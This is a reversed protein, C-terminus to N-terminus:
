MWGLVAFSANLVTEIEEQHESIRVDNDRLASYFEPALPSCCSMKDCGTCTAPYGIAPWVFPAMGPYEIVRTKEDYKFDKQSGVVQNWVVRDGGFACTPATCTWATYNLELVKAMERYGSEFFFLPNMEIVVAGKRQFLLNTLDAGHLAIFVDAEQSHVAQSLFSHKGFEITKLVAGVRATARQLLKEMVDNDRISRKSFRKAYLVVREASKRFGQPGENAILWKDGGSKMAARKDASLRAYMAARFATGMRPSQFIHYVAGPVLARRFCRLNLDDEQHLIVIREPFTYTPHDVGGVAAHLMWETWDNLGGASISGKVIVLRSVYPAAGTISNELRRSANTRLDLLASHLTPIPEIFHRIHSCCYSQRLLVALEDEFYNGNSAADILRTDSTSVYETFHEALLPQFPFVHKEGQRADDFLVFRGSSTVCVNEIICYHSTGIKEGLIGNDTTEDLQYCRHRTQTPGSPLQRVPARFPAPTPRLSPPQPLPTSAVASDRTLWEGRLNPENDRHRISSASGSAGGRMAFALSLTFVAAIATVVVVAVWNRPASSRGTGFGPQPFRHARRHM